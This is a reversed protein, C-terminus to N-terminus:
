KLFVSSASRYILFYACSIYIRSLFKFINTGSHRICATAADEVRMSAPKQEKEHKFVPLISAKHQSKTGSIGLEIM